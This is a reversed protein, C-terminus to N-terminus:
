SKYLYAVINLSFPSHIHLIYYSSTQQDLWLWFLIPYIHRTKLLVIVKLSRTRWSIFQNILCKSQIIVLTFYKFVYCGCECQEFPILATSISYSVANIMVNTVLIMNIFYREYCSRTQKLKLRINSFFIPSTLLIFFWRRTLVCGSLSSTLMAFLM